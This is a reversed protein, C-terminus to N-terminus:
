IKSPHRLDPHLSVRDRSQTSVSKFSAQLVFESIIADRRIRSTKVVRSQHPEVNSIYMRGMGVVSKQQSNSINYSSDDNLIYKDRSCMQDFGCSKFPNTNLALLSVPLNDRNSDWYKTHSCHLCDQQCFLHHHPCQHCQPHCHDVPFISLHLLILNKRFGM